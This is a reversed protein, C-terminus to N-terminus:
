RSKSGSGSGEYFSVTPGFGVFDVIDPDNANNIKIDNNVLFIINNNAASFTTSKLDALDKLIQATSADDRVILFYGGAPITGSLTIKTLSSTAGSASTKQISWGTLDVAQGTPNFLELFDDDTGGTGAIGDLQVENIVLHNAIGAQAINAKVFCLGLGLILFVGTILGAPIKSRRRM